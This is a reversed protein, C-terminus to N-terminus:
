AGNVHQGANKVTVLHVLPDVAYDCTFVVDTVETDYECVDVAELADVVILAM